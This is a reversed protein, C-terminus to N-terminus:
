PIEPPDLSTSSNSSGNVYDVRTGPTYIWGNGGCDVHLSDTAHIRIVPSNLDIEVPSNVEIGSESFRVYQTPISGLISCVYVADAFDFRRRSGPNAQAQNAEVSSTDRDCIIALGIDGVKPDLIVANGGGRLRIYPCHSIIGHPIAIGKGDIQNVLPQIDVFGPAEVDGQNTVAKVLVLTATSIRNILSQIIFTDANFDNNYSSLNQFGQYQEAM